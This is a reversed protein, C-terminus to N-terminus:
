ETNLESEAIDLIRKVSMTSKITSVEAFTDRPATSEKRERIVVVEWRVLGFPVESTVWFHGINTSRSQPREMVSKGELHKANFSMDTAKTQPSESLSRVVPEPYNNLLCITPYIRLAQSKIVKVENEGLRRHGKVIPLLVNPVSDGDVATELVKSEPVLVKYIRAGVPGPDIGAAGPDGTIVKIEIWRCPQVVGEFEADERGVSKISIERSWKLTEKGDAIDPRVNEQIIEGEYEVGTGDEPLQFILGQALAPASALSAVLAALCFGFFQKQRNM